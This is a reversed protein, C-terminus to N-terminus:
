VDSDFDAIFTEILCARKAKVGDSVQFGLMISPCVLATTTANLTSIAM